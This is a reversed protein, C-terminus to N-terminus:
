INKKLLVICFIYLILTIFYSHIHLNPILNLDGWISGMLKNAKAEDVIFYSHCWYCTLYRRTQM